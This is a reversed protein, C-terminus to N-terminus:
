LAFGNDWLVYQLFISWNYQLIDFTDRLLVITKRKESLDDNKQSLM